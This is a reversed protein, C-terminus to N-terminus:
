RNNTTNRGGIVDRPQTQSQKTYFYTAEEYVLHTNIPECFLELRVKHNGPVNAKANVKFTMSKQPGIYPISEFFVQGGREPDSDDYIMAQHNEVSIPSVGEAFAAIVEVNEAAKSGRNTITITYPALKGVEVPSRPNGLQVALDAISEVKTVGYAVTTAGILEKPLKEQATIELKCDGDRVMECVLHGVFEEGTPIMDVTWFVQSPTAAPNRGNSTSVFKASTPIMARIEVNEAPATGNNQIIIQYETQNGVFQMEACEIFATLSPRLIQVTHSSEAQLDYAAKARVMMTLQNEQKALAEINLSKEEGARLVGLSRSQADASGLGSTMLTLQLDEVDATGPNRLRLRFKEVSGWRMESPGDLSMELLAEQVEISTKNDPQKFQHNWAINLTKRERPILHVTLFQEEDPKMSNLTWNIINMEDDKETIQTSGVSFDTSSIDAWKPVEIAILVQEAAAGGRNVVKFEYPSDQGVIRRNPGTMEIDILAVKPAVSHKSKGVIQKEALQGKNSDMENVQTHDTREKSSSLSRPPYIRKPQSSNEVELSDLDINETTEELINSVVKRQPTLPLAVSVDNPASYRDKEEDTQVAPNTAYRRGSGESRKEQQSELVRDQSNKTEQTENTEVVTEVVSEVKGSEVKAHVTIKEKEDQDAFPKELVSQLNSEASPLAVKPVSSKASNSEAQVTENLQEVATQRQIDNQAVRRQSDPSHTHGSTGQNLRESMETMSDEKAAQSSLLSPSLGESSPVSRPITRSSTSGSLDRDQKIKEFANSRIRSLRELGTNVGTNGTSMAASDQASSRTNPNQPNQTNTAFAENQSNSASSANQQNQTNKESQQFQTNETNLQNQAISPGPRTPQEPVGSRATSSGSMEGLQVRRDGISSNAPGSLNVNPTSRAGAVAKDSLNPQSRLPNGNGSPQQNSPSATQQSGSSKENAGFFNKTREWLSPTDGKGTNDQTGQAFVINNALCLCIIAICFLRQKKRM